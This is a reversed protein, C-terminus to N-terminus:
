IVSGCSTWCLLSQQVIVNSTNLHSLAVLLCLFLATSCYCQIYKFLRLSSEFRRIRRQVIVNSTNLYLFDLMPSISYLPQVIVNSTNLNIILMLTVLYIILQVIVNSTNLYKNWSWYSSRHCLQVIVNSTNLYSHVIASATWNTNFLLM